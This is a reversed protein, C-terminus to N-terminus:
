RRGGDGIARVGDREWLALSNKGLLPAKWVAMREDATQLGGSVSPLEKEWQSFTLILAPKTPRM